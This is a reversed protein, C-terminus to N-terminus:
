QGWKCLGLHLFIHQFEGQFPLLHLQLFADEPIIGHPVLNDELLNMLFKTSSNPSDKATRSREGSPYLIEKNRLITGSHKSNAATGDSTKLFM